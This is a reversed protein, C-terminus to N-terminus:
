TIWRDAGLKGLFWDSVPLEHEETIGGPGTPNHPPWYDDAMANKAGLLLGKYTERGGRLMAFTPYRPDDVLTYIACQHGGHDEVVIFRFKGPSPLAKGMKRLLVNCGDRYFAAQCHYRYYWVEREFKDPHASRSVKKADAIQGTHPQWVDLRAKCRLGTDPDTWVISTEFQAGDIARQFDPLKHVEECMDKAAQLHKASVCEKGAAKQEAVWRKCWTANGNWKTEVIELEPTPSFMMWANDDDDWTPWVLMTERNAGRGFRYEYCLPSITGTADEDMLKVTGSADKAKKVVPYTMPLVAYSERARSPELLCRHWLRGFEQDDTAETSGPNEAHWRMNALPNPSEGTKLWSWNAARWSRYVREPVNPWFGDDPPEVTGPYVDSM